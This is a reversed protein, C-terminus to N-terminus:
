KAQAQTTARNFLTGFVQKARGPHNIAKAPEQNTPTGVVTLAVMRIGYHPTCKNGYVGPNDLLRTLDQGIKGTVPRLAM